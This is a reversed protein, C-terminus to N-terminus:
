DVSEINSTPARADHNATYPSLEDLPMQALAVIAALRDNRALALGCTGFRSQVPVARLRASIASSETTVRVPWACRAASRVQCPNPLTFTRRSPGTSLSFLSWVPRSQQDTACMPWCSAKARPGAMNAECLVSSATTVICTLKRAHHPM